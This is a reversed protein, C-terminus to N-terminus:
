DALHEPRIGMGILRGPIGRLVPFRTALRFFLPAELPEASALVRTIVRDQVAIPLRQTVRVPWERRRQVKRLRDDSFDKDKLINSAAVSHQIALKIGVGGQPTM